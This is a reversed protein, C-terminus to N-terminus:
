GPLPLRVTMRRVNDSAHPSVRLVLVSIDDAPRNDDLRVAQSLLADALEQPSPDQDEIISRITQRADLPTGRREGAHSIGDTFIVITLGAEITLETIVPRVNRSVGLSSSDEAHADIEEGRCIFMPSPNNRTLVITNSHLDVSAINLTCTVKGAREAFLADSAARAAAGDRVGEAILSIVKRVVMMSVAKAGRGSTQGDALVVSLGGTPREIVELTDGSESVAYKNVKAVAIQIEMREM